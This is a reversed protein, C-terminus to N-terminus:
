NGTSHLRDKTLPFGPHQCRTRLGWGLQMLCGFVPGVLLFTNKLVFHHSSVGLGLAVKILEHWWSSSTFATNESGLVTGCNCNRCCSATFPWWQAVWLLLSAAQKSLLFDMNVCFTNSWCVNLQSPRHTDTRTHTHLSRTNLQTLRHTHVYDGMIYLM